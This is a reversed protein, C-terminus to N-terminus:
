EEEDDDDGLLAEWDLEEEASMYYLAGMVGALLLGVIDQESFGTVPRFADQSGVGILDLIFLKEGDFVVGTMNVLVFVVLAAAGILLGM